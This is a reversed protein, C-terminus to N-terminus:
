PRIYAYGHQQKHMLEVVGAPVYSIGPLMDKETLEMAKMTNQCAVVGVGDRLAQAVREGATSGQKLMAIGPGYAVIEVIVKDAGLERQLNHVNNLTLSWKGPDSDSVQFVVRSVHVSSDQSHASGGFALGFLMMLAGAISRASKM